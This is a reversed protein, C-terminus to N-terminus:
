AVDCFQLKGPGTILQLVLLLMMMMPVLLSRATLPVLASPQAPCRSQRPVRM